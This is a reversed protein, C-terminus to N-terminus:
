SHARTAPRGERLAAEADTRLLLGLLKGHSTTVIWHKVGQNARSQLLKEVPNSPRLTKPGLEMVEEVRVDADKRLADGRLLGVVIQQENVVPCLDYASAVVRERV